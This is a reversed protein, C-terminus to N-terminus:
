LIDHFSYDVQADLIINGIKILVTLDADSFRRLYQLEVEPLSKFNQFLFYASINFLLLLDLSQLECLLLGLSRLDMRAQKDFSTRSRCFVLFVKMMATKAAERRRTLGHDRGSQGWSSRKNPLGAQGSSLAALASPGAQPRCARACGPGPLAAL